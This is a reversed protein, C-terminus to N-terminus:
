RQPKRRDHTGDWPELRAALREYRRFRELNEEHREDEARCRDEHRKDAADRNQDIKGELRDLRTSIRVLDGNIAKHVGRAVAEATQEASQAPMMLKRLFPLGVVLVVGLLMWFAIGFHEVPVKDLANSVVGPWTSPEAVLAM